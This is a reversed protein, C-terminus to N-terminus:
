GDFSAVVDAARAVEDVDATTAVLIVEDAGTDAVARLRDLVARPSTATVLASM